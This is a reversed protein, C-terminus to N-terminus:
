YKNFENRRIRYWEDRLGSDYAPAIQGNLEILAQEHPIANTVHGCTLCQRVYHISGNIYIRKVLQRAPHECDM